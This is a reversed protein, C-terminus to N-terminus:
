RAPRLPALQVSEPFKTELKTLTEAAAVDDGALRAARVRLALSEETMVGSPHARDYDDLAALAAQANKDLVAARARKIAAVEDALSANPPPPPEVLKTEPATSTTVTVTSAFTSTSAVTPTPTPAPAPTLTRTQAPTQTQAPPPAHTLTPTALTRTPAAITATEEHIAREQLRGATYGGTAATLAITAIGVKSVAAHKLALWLKTGLSPALVATGAGLAGLIEGELSRRPADRKAAAILASASHKV